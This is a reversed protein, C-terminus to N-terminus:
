KISKITFEYGFIDETVEFTVSYKTGEVLNITGNPNIYKMEYEFNKNNVFTYSTYTYSTDDEYGFGSTGIEKLTFSDTHTGISYLGIKDRLENETKVNSIDENNSKLYIKYDVIIKKNEKQTYYINLKIYDTYDGLANFLDNNNVSLVYDSSNDNSDYITVNCKSDFCFYGGVSVNEVLTRSTSSSSDSPNDKDNITINWNDPNFLQVFAGGIGTIIMVFLVVFAIGIETLFGLFIKGVSTGGKSSCINKLENIDKGSNELKIKAIKKNAYYLYIKNVLLGIVVNFVIILIFNNIFSLAVLNLLFVLLAYGFMKRYFMYFTTFFFGAFNFPRTTIKEYNNGIFARLLEKDNVSNNNSNTQPPINNNINQNLIPSVPIPNQQIDNNIGTTLNINNNMQLNTNLQSSINNNLNQSPQPVENQINASTNNIGFASNYNPTPNSNNVINNMSQEAANPINNINNTTGFTNNNSNSDNM